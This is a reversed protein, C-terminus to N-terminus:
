LTLWAKIFIAVLSVTFVGAGWLTVFWLLKRPLSTEKM